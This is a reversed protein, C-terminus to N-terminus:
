ELILVFCSVMQHIINDRLFQKGSENITSLYNSFFAKENLIEKFFSFSKSTLQIQKECYNTEIQEVSKLEKDTAFIWGSVGSNSELKDISPALKKIRDFFSKTSGRKPSLRCSSKTHKQFSPNTLTREVNRNSYWKGVKVTQYFAETNNKEHKPIRKESEAKNMFQSNLKIAEDNANNWESQKKM